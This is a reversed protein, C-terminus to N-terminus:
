FITIFGKSVPIPDGNPQRIEIRYKDTVEDYTTEYVREDNSLSPLWEETYKEIFQQENIADELSMNANSSM